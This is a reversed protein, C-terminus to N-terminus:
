ARRTVAKGFLGSPRLWLTIVMAAFGAADKFNSSVYGATMVEVFGLALGAVLAGRINGLGGIVVVAFGRLMLPEGMYPHVADFNLGILIGAVAILVAALFSVGSFMVGVNIGMLAAAEPNEALARIAVGLRTREIFLFLLAALLAVVAIILLQIQGIQLVCLDIPSQSLLTAPFRRVEAGFALFMLSNLLLAGGLTVILSSLEPARARRLPALVATDCVVAIAGTGIAGFLGAAWLPVGFDRVAVLSLFAGAAVYFAYLLNIVRLVGFTLTFGMSFLAYVSGLVLANFLQQALM